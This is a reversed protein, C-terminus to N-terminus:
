DSRMLLRWARTTISAGPVLHEGARALDFLRMHDRDCVPRSSARQDSELACDPSLSQVHQHDALMAILRADDDM